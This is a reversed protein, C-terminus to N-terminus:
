SRGRLWGRETTAAVTVPAVKRACVKTKGVKTCGGPRIWITGVAAATAVGACSLGLL